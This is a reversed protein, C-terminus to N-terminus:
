DNVIQRGRERDIEPCNKETITERIEVIRYKKQRDIQRDIQRDKATRFDKEIDVTQVKEPPLISSINHVGIYCLSIVNM